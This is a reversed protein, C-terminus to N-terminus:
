GNVWNKFDSVLPAEHSARNTKTQGRMTRLHRRDAEASHFQRLPRCLQHGSCDVRTIPVDIRRAFVAGLSMNPFTDAGRTNRPLLQEDRCLHRLEIGM